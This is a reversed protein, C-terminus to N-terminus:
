NSAAFPKLAAMERDRRLDAELDDDLATIGSGSRLPLGAAQALEAAARSAITLARGRDGALLLEIPRRDVPKDPSLLVELKRWSDLEGMSQIVVTLGPLVERNRFQVAPFRWRKGFRVGLIRERNLMNNVNQRTQALREAVEDSTLMGGSVAELAPVDVDLGENRGVKMGALEGGSIEKAARLLAARGARHKALTGLVLPMQAASLHSIFGVVDRDSTARGPTTGVVRGRVKAAKM